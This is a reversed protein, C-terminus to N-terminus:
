EITFKQQLIISPRETVLITYEGSVLGNYTLDSSWTNGEDISTQINAEVEFNHPTVTVSDATNSLSFILPQIPTMDANQDFPIVDHKITDGAAFESIIRSLMKASEEFEANNSLLSNALTKLLSAEVNFNDVYEDIIIFRNKSEDYLSRHVEVFYQNFSSGFRYGVVFFRETLNNSTNQIGVHYLGKVMDEDNSFSTNYLVKWSNSFINFNHETLNM